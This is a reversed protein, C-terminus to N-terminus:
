KSKFPDYVHEQEKDNHACVQMRPPWNEEYVVHDWIPHVKIRDRLRM